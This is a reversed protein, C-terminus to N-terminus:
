GVDFEDRGITNRRVPTGECLNAVGMQAVRDAIARHDIGVPQSGVQHAHEVVESSLKHTVGHFTQPHKAVSVHCVEQRGAGSIRWRCEQRGDM